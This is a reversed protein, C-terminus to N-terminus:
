IGAVPTALARASKIMAADFTFLAAGIRQAIAINIADPTRLKLDLRRLFAEAAKVDAPGIEVRRAIRATWSDFTALAIRAQRQAIEKTRVQRGLASAFEAAAFDSVMLVSANERLFSDARRTFPDDTFLAVLVSADLYLSM